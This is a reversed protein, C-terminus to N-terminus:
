PDANDRLFQTVQDLNEPRPDFNNFFHALENVDVINIGQREFALFADRFIDKKEPDKNIQSTMLIIFEKLSVSGNGDADATALMKQIEKKTPNMGLSRLVYGLEKADIQGSNDTDFAKFAEKMEDLQEQTLGKLDEAM